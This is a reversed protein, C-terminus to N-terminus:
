QVRAWISFASCRAGTLPLLRSSIPPFPVTTTKEFGAPPTPFVNLHRCASSPGSAGSSSYSRFQGDGSVMWSLVKWTASSSLPGRPVSVTAMGSFLLVQFFFFSGASM